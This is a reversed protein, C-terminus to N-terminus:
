MPRRRAPPRLTPRRTTSSSRGRGPGPWRWASPAPSGAGAERSPRSPGAGSGPWAGPPGRVTHRTAGLREGGIEVVDGDELWRLEHPREFICGLTVTGSGIVDGPVVRSDRSAFAVLHSFSWNM